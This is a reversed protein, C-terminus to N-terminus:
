KKVRFIYINDEVLFTELQVIQFGAKQAQQLLVERPTCSWPPAGSKVPEREVIVLKGGPKLAPKINKLLEVPKDLCHYTSIMFAIDLVGEQFGPQTINGHIIVVNRINNKKCRHKLYQLASQKIDNAYVKGKDGVRAALKVTYRGRGAGIEGIVMGPKLGMVDMIKGPPQKKNRAHERKDSNGEYWQSNLMFVISFLLFVLSYLTLGMM